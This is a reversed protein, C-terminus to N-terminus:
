WGMNSACVPGIGLEISKADTLERSCIACQGTLKGHKIAAGKPDSAADVIIAKQEESCDRSAFLKGGMIKGLYIGEEGKIATKVYIAGANKSTVPAISFKIEGVRMAPRKVGRAVATAIATEVNSIDVVPATAEYVKAAEIREADRVKQSAVCKEASALQRDTLDGYKVVSQKLSVAFEFGTNADMWGAVKPHRASFQEWNNEANRVVAKARSVAAKARVEPATKHVLIGKGNCAFCPRRTYGTYSSWIGSGNCKICRSEFTPRCETKDSAFVADLDDSSMDDFFNTTANM